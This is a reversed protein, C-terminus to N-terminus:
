DRGEGVTCCVLLKGFTFGLGADGPVKKSICIVSGGLSVLQPIRPPPGSIQTKVLSGLSSQHVHFNPLWQFLSEGWWVVVQTLSGQSIKPSASPLM